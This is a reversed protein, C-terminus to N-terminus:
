RANVSGLGGDVGLVQGTVWGQAPDMLWAIASAVEEPEGIRGLAHMAISGKLSSENGTIRSTLPTRVLGPAVCNVRIGRSGYTAAASLALGIIGAKAAAIAEHNALGKRAAASSVLVISGGTQMMAISAARVVAFASGLNVTITSSWEAETTLHAPKLLLSGVCNAVGDVRGFKEVARDMCAAVADVQTADLVFHEAGFDGALDNLRDESRGALMLHAGSSSLSRSLAAGIGGTAGFIVYVPAKETDM